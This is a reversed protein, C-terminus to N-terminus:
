SMFFRPGRAVLQGQAVLARLSAEVASRERSLAAALEETSRGRLAARVEALAAATLASDAEPAAVAAPRAGVRDDASRSTSSAM